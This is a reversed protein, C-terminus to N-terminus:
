KEYNTNIDPVRDTTMYSVEGPKFHFGEGFIYQELLESNNKQEDTIPLIFIQKTNFDMITVYGGILWNGDEYVLNGDEDYLNSNDEEPLWETWYLIKQEYALDVIKEDSLALLEEISWGRFERVSAGKSIDERLEQATLELTSSYFIGDGWCWGENMGKGTISCKRTFYDSKDFNKM